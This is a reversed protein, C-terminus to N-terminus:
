SRNGHRPPGPRPRYSVGTGGQGDRDDRVSEATDDSSINYRLDPLDTYERLSAGAGGASVAGDDLGHVHVVLFPLRVCRDRMAGVIDGRVMERGQEDAEGSSFASITDHFFKFRLM